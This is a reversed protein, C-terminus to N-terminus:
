KSTVKQYYDYLAERIIQSNGKKTLEKLEEMMRNQEGNFWLMRKSGLKKDEM